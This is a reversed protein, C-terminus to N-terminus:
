GEIIDGSRGQQEFKDITLSVILARLRHVIRVCADYDHLLNLSAFCAIMMGLDYRGTRAGNRENTKGEDRQKADQNLQLAEMCTNMRNHLETSGAALTM